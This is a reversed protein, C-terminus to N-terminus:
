TKRGIYMFYSWLGRYANHHHETQREFLAHLQPLLHSEMRVHNAAMWRAFSRSGSGHFDVVAIHGGPALDRHAAALAQEWGPNFMSLAYSFVILDRGGDRAGPTGYARQELTVRGRFEEAKTRAIQLMQQSLDVGTIRAGPFRRALAVLNKGTGCGVELINAPTGRLHRVLADRGFLFSWRTADYIRAHLRYYGEIDTGIAKM